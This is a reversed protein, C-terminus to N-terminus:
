CVVATHQRNLIPMYIHYIPLYCRSGNVVVLQTLSIQTVIPKVVSGAVAM